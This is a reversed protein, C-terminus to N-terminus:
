TETEAEDNSSSDNDDGNWEDSSGDRAAHYDDCASEGARDAEAGSGHDDADDSGTSYEAEEKQV